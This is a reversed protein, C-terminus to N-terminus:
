PIENTIINSLQRSAIKGAKTDWMRCKGSPSLMHLNSEGIMMEPGFILNAGAAIATRNHGSYLTQVANHVAVLSSSCATDITLIEPFHYCVDQIKPILPFLSVPGSM